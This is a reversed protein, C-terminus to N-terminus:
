TKRGPHHKAPAQFLAAAIATWHNLRKHEQLHAAQALVEPWDMQADRYRTEAQIRRDHEEDARRKWPTKM